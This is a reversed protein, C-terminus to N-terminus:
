ENLSKLFEEITDFTMHRKPDSLDDISANIRMAMADDCYEVDEATAEVVMDRVFVPRIVPAYIRVIKDTGWSSNATSVLPCYGLTSLMATTM